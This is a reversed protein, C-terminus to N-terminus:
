DGDKARGAKQPKPVANIDDCDGFRHVLTYRANPGLRLVARLEDLNEFWGANMRTRKALRKALREITRLRTLEEPSVCHPPSRYILKVSM